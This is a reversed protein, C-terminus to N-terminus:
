GLSSLWHADEGDLGRGHSATSRGHAGVRQGERVEQTHRVSGAEVPPLFLDAAGAAAGVGDVQFAHGGGAVGLGTLHEVGVASLVFGAPAKADGAPVPPGGAARGTGPGVGSVGEM